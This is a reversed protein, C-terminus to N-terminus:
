EQRDRQEHSESGLGCGDRVDWIADAGMTGVKGCASHDLPQGGPAQGAGATESRELAGSPHVGAAARDPKAAARPFSGRGSGEGAGCGPAGPDLEAVMRQLGAGDDAPAQRQGHGHRLGRVPVPLGSGCPAGEIVQLGYTLGRSLRDIHTVVLTDGGAVPDLLELFGDRNNRAVAPRRPGSTAWSAAPASWGSWRCTWIRTRPAREGLGPRLLLPDDQHVGPQFLRFYVTRGPPFSGSNGAVM